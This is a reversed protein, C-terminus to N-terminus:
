FLLEHLASGPLNGARDGGQSALVHCARTEWQDAKAMTVTARPIFRGALGSM